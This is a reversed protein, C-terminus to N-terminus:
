QCIGSRRGRQNTWLALRPSTAPSSDTSRNPPRTRATARRRARSRGPSVCATTLWASGNCAAQIRSSPRACVSRSIYRLATSLAPMSRTSMSPSVGVAHSYMGGGATAFGVIAAAQGHGPIGEGVSEEPSRRAGGVLDLAVIAVALPPLELLLRAPDRVAIRRRDGAVVVVSVPLIEREEPLQALARM